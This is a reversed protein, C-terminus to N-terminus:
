DRKLTPGELNIQQHIKGNLGMNPLHGQILKTALEEMLDRKLTPGELNIQLHIKGNLGM